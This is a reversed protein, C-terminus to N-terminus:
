SKRVNFIAQLVDDQMQDAGALNGSDCGNSESREYESNVNCESRSSNTKPAEDKL